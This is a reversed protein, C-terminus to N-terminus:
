IEPFTYDVKIDEKGKAPVYTVSAIKKDPHPNEYTHEFLYTEGNKIPLTSYSAEKREAESAASNAINTGLKVPLTAVTGDTYTLQYHGLLYKDDTVFVGCWFRKQPVSHHAAHRVVLPHRVTACYQEYLTAFTHEGLWAADSSDYTDSWLAYGTSILDYYQFNRQMYEPAFSGWNSVFGGKIGRNIRARFNECSLASFNGFVAPYERAHYEDDLHEGFSWYWHLYTIDPSLMDACRFLWPIQYRVGNQFTQVENWGGIRNGNTYRAKLLKEAWMFVSVGREALYDKIKLIDDAYLRARDKGRCRPCLGISYCEDHGINIAKPHFVDIVEDLVDFAIEYSRPNSPCYTDPYPDNDREALEPYALCIYDTHSLTPCEPIIEIGRKKCEAAIARCEEQSLFSGDANESHISNKPWQQSNQIETSRNSYQNMDTCFEVWKENIRPHRKYEMGGGIELILYNYKYYVLFDLMGIFEQMTERGPLYVRYGRMPTAPADYLVGETIGGADVDGMITSLARLFGMPTTAFVKTDEGYSIVYEEEEGRYLEVVGSVRGMELFDDKSAQAADGQLKLKIPTYLEDKIDQPIGLAFTLSRCTKGEGAPARDFLRGLQEKIYDDYDCAPIVVETRPTLTLTAAHEPNKRYM